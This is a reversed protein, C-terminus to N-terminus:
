GSRRRTGRPRKEKVKKTATKSARRTNEPAAWGGNILVLAQSPTVDLSAGAKLHRLDVGAIFAAFKHTLRIRPMDDPSCYRVISASCLEVMM